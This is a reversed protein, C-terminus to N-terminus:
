AIGHQAYINDYQSKRPKRPKPAVAVKCSCFHCGETDHVGPAHKCCKTPDPQAASAPDLQALREKQRRINGTLNSLEWSEHPQSKIAARKAELEAIRERLREVADPDDSYIAHDAADLINSARSEFSAAPKEIAYARDDRANMRARAPIHGPQTIFAWDHRLNADVSRLQEAKAHRKEAWELLRAAKAERRERYTAM